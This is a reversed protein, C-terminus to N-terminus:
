TGSARTQVQGLVPTGQPLQEASRCVGPVTGPAPGLLAPRGGVLVKTAVTGWTITVCPQPKTGSPAPVQFPCGTVAIASDTTAVPRGGVIVNRQTPAVTAPAQHFCQVQAGIHLLFGPM